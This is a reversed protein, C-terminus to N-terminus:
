FGNSLLNLEDGSIKIELISLGDFQLVFTSQCEM